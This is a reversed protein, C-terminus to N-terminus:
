STLCNFDNQKLEDMLQKIEPPSLPIRGEESQQSKIFKKLRAHVFDADAKVEKLALWYVFMVAHRFYATSQNNAYVSCVLEFAKESSVNNQRFNKIAKLLKLQPDSLSM